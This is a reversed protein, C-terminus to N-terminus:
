KKKIAKKKKPAKKVEPVSISDEKNMLYSSKEGPALGADPGNPTKWKETANEISSCSTAIFVLLLCSLVKKM